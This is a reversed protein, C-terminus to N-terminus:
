LLFVTDSARNGAKRHSNRITQAAPASQLIGCRQQFAPATSAAMWMQPYVQPYLAAIRFFSGDAPGTKLRHTPNKKPIMDFDPPAKLHLIRLAKHQFFVLCCCRTDRHFFHSFGRRKGPARGQSIGAFASYKKVPARENRYLQSNVSEIMPRPAADPRLRKSYSSSLHVSM